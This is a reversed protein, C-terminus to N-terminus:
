PHLGLSAATGLAWISSLIIEKIRGKLDVLGTSRQVLRIKTYLNRSTILITITDQVTDSTHCTVHVIVHNKSLKGLEDWFKVTVKSNESL